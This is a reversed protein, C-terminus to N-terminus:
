HTSAPLEGRLEDLPVLYTAGPELWVVRETTARGFFLRMRLANTTASAPDAEVVLVVAGAPLDASWRHTEVRAGPPTEGDLRVSWRAIPQISEIELTHRGAASNASPNGDATDVLGPGVQPFPPSPSTEAHAPERLAAVMGFAAAAFGIAGVLRPTLGSRFLSLTM